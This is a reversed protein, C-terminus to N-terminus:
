RGYYRRRPEAHPQQHRHMIILPDLIDGCQVCRAGEFDLHGMDSLWDHFRERVMLGRCRWCRGTQMKKANPPRTIVHGERAATNIM